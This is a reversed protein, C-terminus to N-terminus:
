HVLCFYAWFSQFCFSVFLRVLLLFLACFSLSYYVKSGFLTCFGQVSIYVFSRAASSSRLMKSMYSPPPSPCWQHMFFSGPRAPWRQFEQQKHINVETKDKVGSSINEACLLLISCPVPFLCTVALMHTHMYLACAHTCTHVCARTFPKDAYASFFANLVTCRDVACIHQSWMERGNNRAVRLCFQLSFDGQFFNCFCLKGM